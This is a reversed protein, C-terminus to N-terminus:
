GKSKVSELRTAVEDALEILTSLVLLELFREFRQEGLDMTLLRLTRATLALLCVENPDLPKCVGIMTCHKWAASLTLIELGIDEALLMVSAPSCPVSLLVLCVAGPAKFWSGKM